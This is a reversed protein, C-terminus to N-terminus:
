REELPTQYDLGYQELCAVGLAIVQVIENLPHSRNVSGYRIGDEAEVMERRMIRLWEKATHMQVYMGQHARERVIENFIEERTVM